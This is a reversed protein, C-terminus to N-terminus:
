PDFRLSDHHGIKKLADSTWVLSAQNTIEFYFMMPVAIWRYLCGKQGIADKQVPQKYSKSHNLRCCYSDMAIQM